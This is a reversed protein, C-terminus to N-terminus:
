SVTNGSGNNIIGQGMHSTDIMNPWCINSSTSSNLNIAANTIYGGFVNGIIINAAVGGVTNLGYAMPQVSTGIFINGTISCYYSNVNLEIGIDSCNFNNGTMTCGEVGTTYIGRAGGGRMNFQNHTATLGWCNEAQIGIGGGGSEFHCDIVGIFGVGGGGTGEVWVGKGNIQDLILKALHIDSNCTNLTEGGSATSKVHVGVELGATELGYVFLDAVCDGQALLGTGGSSAGGNAVCHGDMITSANASTSSDLFFGNRTLSTGTSWGAYLSTMHTNGCGALYFNNISNFSYVQYLAVYCTNVMHVGDGATAQATRTVQFDRLSTWFISGSACNAGTGTLNLVHGTTQTSSIISLMNGMGFINIGGPVNLVATVKYTKPLLLVTGRSSAAADIAAQLATTDDHSGDGVAGHDEPYIVVRMAKGDLASQLGSVDTIVHTHVTPAKGGLSTTVDAFNSNTLNRLNLGTTNAPITQISM